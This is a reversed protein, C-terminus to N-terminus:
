TQHLHYLFSQLISIISYGIQTRQEKSCDPIVQVIVKKHTTVSYLVRGINRIRENIDQLTQPDNPLLNDQHIHITVQTAALVQYNKFAM